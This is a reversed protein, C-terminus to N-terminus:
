DSRFVATRSVTKCDGNSEVVFPMLVPKVVGVRLGQCVKQRGEQGRDRQSELLTRLRKWSILLILVFSCPRIDNIHIDRFFTCVEQGATYEVEELGGPM